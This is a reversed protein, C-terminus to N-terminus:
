NDIRVILFRLLNETIRLRSEIEAPVSPESSFTTFIYFGESCKDIEYALKRKGWEDVKGINGGFKTILETIKSIDDKIQNEDVSPKIVTALEYKNM